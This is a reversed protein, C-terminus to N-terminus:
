ACDPRELYAFDWEALGALLRLSGLATTDAQADDYMQRGERLNRAGAGLVRCVWLPPIGSSRWAAEENLMQQVNGNRSRCLIQNRVYEAQLPSFGDASWTSADIPDFAAEEWEVAEAVRFGHQRWSRVTAVQFAVGGYVPVSVWAAIEDDTFGDGQLAAVFEQQEQDSWRRAGAPTTGGTSGAM